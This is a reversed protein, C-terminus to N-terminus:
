LYTFKHGYFDSRLFYWIQGMQQWDLRIRLWILCGSVRGSTLWIDCWEFMPPRSVNDKNKSQNIQVHWSFQSMQSVEGEEVSHRLSMLNHWNGFLDSYYPLIKLKALQRYIKARCTYNPFLSTLYPCLTPTKPVSNSFDPYKLSWTEICKALCIIGIHHM